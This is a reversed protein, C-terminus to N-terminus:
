TVSANSGQLLRESDTAPLTQLVHLAPRLTVRRVKVNKATEHLHNPRHIEVELQTQVVLHSDHGSM